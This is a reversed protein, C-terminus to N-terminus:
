IGCLKLCRVVYCGKNGSFASEVAKIKRSNSQLMRSAPLASSFIFLDSFHSAIVCIFYIDGNKAEGCKAKHGHWLVLIFLVCWNFQSAFRRIDSRKSSNGEAQSYPPLSEALSCRHVCVSTKKSNLSCHLCLRSLIETWHPNAWLWFLILVSAAILANSGGDSSLLGWTLNIFLSSPSDSGTQQQRM